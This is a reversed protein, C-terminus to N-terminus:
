RDSCFGSFHNNYFIENLGLYEKLIVILEHESETGSKNNPNFFAANMVHRVFDTHMTGTTSLKKIIEVFYNEWHYAWILDVYGLKGQRWNRYNLNFYKNIENEKIEFLTLQNDRRLFRFSAAIVDHTARLTRNDYNYFNILELRKDNSIANCVQDCKLYTEKCNEFIKYSIFYYLHYQSKFLSDNNDGVFCPHIHM